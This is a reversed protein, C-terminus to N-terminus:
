VLFYFGNLDKTLSNALGECRGIGEKVGLGVEEEGFLSGVEGHFAAVEAAGAAGAVVVALVPWWGCGLWSGAGEVDEESGGLRGLFGAVGLWVVPLGASM